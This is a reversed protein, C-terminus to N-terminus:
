CIMSYYLQRMPKFLSGSIRHWHVNIDYVCTEESGTMCRASDNRCLGIHPSAGPRMDYALTM